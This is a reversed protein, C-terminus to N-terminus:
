ASGAQLRVNKVNTVHQVVDAQLDLVLLLLCGVHGADDVLPLLKCPHQVPHEHQEEQNGDDQRKHQEKGPRRPPVSRFTIESGTVKVQVCGPCNYM